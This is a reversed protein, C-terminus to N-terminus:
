TPVKGFKEIVEADLASDLFRTLAAESYERKGDVERVYNPHNNEFSELTMAM